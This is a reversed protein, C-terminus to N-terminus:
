RGSKQLSFFAVLRVHNGRKLFAKGLYKNKEIEVLEDIVHRLREPNEPLNYDLQLVDINDQLGKTINTKFPFAYIETKNKSVLSITYKKRFLPLLSISLVNNGTQTKLDFSKGKWPLWFNALFGVFSEFINKPFLQELTGSYFGDLNKAPKGQIFIQRLSSTDQMLKENTV